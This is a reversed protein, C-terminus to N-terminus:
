RVFFIIKQNLPDAFSLRLTYEVKNLHFPSPRDCHVLAHTMSSSAYVEANLNCCHNQCNNDHLSINEWQEQGWYSQVRSMLVTAM